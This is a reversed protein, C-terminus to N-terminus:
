RPSMLNTAVTSAAGMAALSSGVTMGPENAEDHMVMSTDEEQESGSWVSPASSEDDEDPVDGEEPAADTEPQPQPPVCDVGNPNELDAEPAQDGAFKKLRDRELKRRYLILAIIALLIALIALIIGVIGGTGLGGDEEVPERAEVIVPTIPAETPSDTVPSLTPGGSPGASPAPTPSVSPSYTPNPSDISRSLVYSIQQCILDKYEEEVATTEAGSELGNLFIEADDGECCVAGMGLKQCHCAMSKHVVRFVWPLDDFGDFDEFFRAIYPPDDLSNWFAHYESESLGVSGDADASVMKDLWFACEEPTYMPATGTDFEETTNTAVTENTTAADIATTADVTPADTTPADLPPRTEQAQVLPAVLPLLTLLRILGM